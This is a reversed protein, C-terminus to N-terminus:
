GEVCAALTVLVDVERQWWSGDSMQALAVVRGSTALRIRTTVRALGARPGLRFVAVEPSPNRETFLALVRVHDTATMPSAAEITVPVANGNEVLEPLDISM